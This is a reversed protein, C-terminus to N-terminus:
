KEDGVIAFYRLRPRRRMPGATAREAHRLGQVVTVRHVMCWSDQSVFLHGQSVAEAFFFDEPGEARGGCGAAPCCGVGVEWDVWQWSCGPAVSKCLASLGGEFAVLPFIAARLAATEGANCSYEALLSMTEMELM